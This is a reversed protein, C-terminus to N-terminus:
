MIRTGKMKKSIQYIVYYCSKLFLTERNEPSLSMGKYVNNKSVSDLLM